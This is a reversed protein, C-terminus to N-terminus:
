GLVVERYGNRGAALARHTGDAIVRGDRIFVVHEALDVLAPSTTVIVTTRGARYRRVGQAVSSETVPDVATTPEHLVLIPADAALARALAIRQRQGGSLSRGRESMPTEVGEPLNAIIEDVAAASIAGAVDGASDARADDGGGGAAVVGRDAAVCDAITGAFLHADHAAVLITHRISEPTHERLSRGALTIRGGTPDVDRRLCDLLADADAPDACVVATLAGRAATFSVGRLSASTVDEFRIEGEAPVISAGGTVSPPQALVAGIRSASARGQALQTNVLAFQSLPGILFQALGVAAVLDGITIRGDLAEGGGVLAIVALLVGTLATMVGEQWSQAGAARVAAHWSDQSVRRYRASAARQAGIGKLVRVGAVLDAALGCARAARDQETHSRAELPRGLLHAAVLLAVTAALILLGLSVSVRLLAVTGAVLGVVAALARPLALNIDGVRQADGTALATLEGSHGRAGRRIVREVLRARVVHAGHFAAHEGLRLGYRFCVAVALFVCALVALGWVLGWPRGGAIATDVLYGILVPILAEGVQHASYLVAAGFLPARQSVM